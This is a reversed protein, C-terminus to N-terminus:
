MKKLLNINEITESFYASETNLHQWPLSATDSIGAIAETLLKKSQASQCHSAQASTEPIGTKEPIGDLRQLPSTFQRIPALLCDDFVLAHEADLRAHIRDARALFGQQELYKAGEQMLVRESRLLAYEELMIQAERLHRDEALRTVFRTDERRNQRRAAPAIHLYTDLDVFAPQQMAARVEILARDYFERTSSFFYGDHEAADRPSLKSGDALPGAKIADFLSDPRLYHGKGRVSMAYEPWTAQLAQQMMTACNHTFFRYDGTYRWHIDSLERVMQQRQADGLQLPLSYVERFEGIAYQEYVDMFRNAFLYARYDGKLAKLTDLSFEDIQAQFGLVIHEFLNANCAEESTKGEPCVVLRLAVHGFRSAMSGSKSAFLLHISKVRAPDLWVVNPNEYRALLSFPVPTHCPTSALGTDYRQRFYRAYVPQRCTFGSQTLYDALTEAYPQQRKRSAGIVVNHLREFEADPWLTKNQTHTLVDILTVRADPAEAEQPAEAPAVDQLRATGAQLINQRLAAPAEQLVAQVRQWHRVPIPAAGGSTVPRPTTACGTLFAAILLAAFRIM